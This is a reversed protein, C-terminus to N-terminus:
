AATAVLVAERLLREIPLAEPDVAGQQLCPALM